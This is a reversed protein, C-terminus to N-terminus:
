AHSSSVLESNRAAVVIGNECLQRITSPYGDTWFFFLNDVINRDCTSGRRPICIFCTVRLFLKPRFGQDTGYFLCISLRNTIFIVFLFCNDCIKSDAHFGRSLLGDTRRSKRGNATSEIECPSSPGIEVSRPSLALTYMGRLSIFIASEDIQSGPGSM